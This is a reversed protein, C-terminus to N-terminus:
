PLVLHPLDPRLISSNRLGFAELQLLDDSENPLTWGPLIPTDSFAPTAPVDRVADAAAGDHAPLDVVASPQLSAAAASAPAAAALSAVAVSGAPGPSATAAGGIPHALDVANSADSEHIAVATPSASAVLGTSAFAVITDNGNGSLVTNNGPGENIYDNGLGAHIYDDGAGTNIADDADGAYLTDSPDEYYDAGEFWGAYVTDNGSGTTINAPEAYTQVFDPGTTSALDILLSGDGMDPESASGADITDAGTGGEIDLSANNYYSDTITDDGNGTFITLGNQYDEDIDVVFYDNGNGGRVTVNDFGIDSAVISMEAEDFLGGSTNQIAIDYTHDAPDTLDDTNQSVYVSDAGDDCEGTLYNNFDNGIFGTPFGQITINTYTGGPGPGIITFYNTGTGGTISVTRVSSDVTFTNTAGDTGGTLDVKSIQNLAEAVEATGLLLRGNSIIYQDVGAGQVNVVSTGTGGTFSGGAPISTGINFRVAGAGGQFVEQGQQYPIANVTNTGSGTIINLQNFGGVQATTVNVTDNGTLTQIGLVQVNTIHINNTTDTHTKAVTYTKGGIALTAAAGGNIGTLTITGDGQFILENTSSAGGAVTDGNVYNYFLDRTGVTSSSGMYTATAGGYLSDNGTGGLLSDVSLTGGLLAGDANLSQGIQSVENGLSAKAAVEAPTPSAPNPLADVKARIQNLQDDLADLLKVPNGSLPNPAAPLTVGRAAATATATAWFAPVATAYLAQNGTGGQILDIGAGGVLTDAGSGGIEFNQLNGGLLLASGTGGEILNSGANDAVLTDQGAGAYLIGQGGPNLILLNNGTGNRADLLDRDTALEAGLTYKGGSLTAPGGILVDNGSSAAYLEDNGLGGILTDVGTAAPISTAVGGSLALQTSFDSQPLDGAYLIDDGGGGNLVSNGSGAVLTDSGGGGTLTDNGTGGYIYTNLTVAPDVTVANNGPGAEISLQAVASSMKFMSFVAQGVQSGATGTTTLNSLTAQYQNATGTAKLGIYYSGPTIENGDPNVAEGVPHSEAITGNQARKVTLTNGSVGTVLMDEQDIDLYYGGAAAIQASTIDAGNTVTLTTSTDSVTAALTGPGPNEPALELSNVGPGGLFVTATPKSNTATFQLEGTDDGNGGYLTTAGIGANLVDGGTGAYLTDSGAGGQLTNHGSSDGYIVENGGGAILANSGASKGDGGVSQWATFNPAAHLSLGDGGYLTERGDGGFITNNGNGGILTDGDGGGYILNGGTTVTTSGSILNDGRSGGRITDKGSGGYVTDAGDDGDVMIPASGGYITDKGSGGHILPVAGNAVAVHATNYAYITDNGTGGDIMFAGAGGYITDAGGAALISDAGANGTILSAGSGGLLADAATGTGASLTDNGSGGIITAPGTGATISDNGSGGVLTDMGAGGILTGGAKGTELHSKNTSAEKSVNALVPIDFGSGPVFQDNGGNGNFVVEKVGTWTTAVAIGNDLASVVGATSESLELNDALSTGTFTLVGNVLAFQVSGNGNALATPWDATTHFNFVPYTKSYSWSISFFFLDISATLKFGLDGEIGVDLADILDSVQNSGFTDLQSAYVKPGGDPATLDVYPTVGFTVAGGVSALDFTFIELKGKIGASLTFTLGLTHAGTKGTQYWFGKTNVGFGVDYSLAASFGLTLDVEVSAVDPIGFSYVPIDYSINKITFSKNGTTYSVLDNTYTGMAFSTGITTLQADTTQNDNVAIGLGTLASVSADLSPETSLNVPDALFVPLYKDLGTLDAISKNIVPLKENLDHYLPGLLPVDQNPDLLVGGISFIQQGELALLSQTTPANLNFTTEAFGSETLTGLYTPSWTVSPLDSLNATMPGTISVTGALSGGITGSLTTAGPVLHVGAFDISAASVSLSLALNADVDDLNGLSVNGTLKGAATFAGVKLPSGNSVFFAPVGNQVSVGFTVAVAVNANAGTFVGGLFGKAKALYDFGTKGSSVFNVPTATQKVWTVELLNGSADPTGTFPVNITFGKNKLLTQVTTWTTSTVSPQNATSFPANLDAALGLAKSITQTVQPISQGLYQDTLDAAVVASGGADYSTLVDKLAYTTLLQRRELLEARAGRRLSHAARRRDSTPRRVSM